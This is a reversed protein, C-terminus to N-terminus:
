EQTARQTEGCNFAYLGQVRRRSLSAHIQRTYHIAFGLSARVSQSGEIVRIASAADNPEVEVVKSRVRMRYDVMADLRLLRVEGAGLPRAAPSCSLLLVKAPLSEEVHPQTPM